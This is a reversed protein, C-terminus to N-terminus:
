RKKKGGGIMYLFRDDSLEEGSKRKSFYLFGDYLLVFKEESVPKLLVEVFAIKKEVGKLKEIKEIENRTAQLINNASNKFLKGSMFNIESDNAKIILSTDLMYPFMGFLRVVQQNLYEKKRFIPTDKVRTFLDETEIIGKISMKELSYIRENIKDVPLIERTFPNRTEGSRLIKKLDIIDYCKGKIKFIRWKPLENLEDGLLNSDECSEIINYMEESIIKCLERKSKKDLSKIGLETGIEILDKLGEKNLKSCIDQWKFEQHKYSEKIQQRMNPIRISKKIHSIIDTYDEEDDEELEYLLNMIDSIDFEGNKLLFDIIKESEKNINYAGYAAEQLAEFNKPDVGNDILLKIVKLGGHTAYLLADEPISMGKKIFMDVTKIDNELAYNFIIEEEEYSLNYYESDMLVKVLESDRNKIAKSMLHVWFTEFSGWLNEMDVESEDYNKLLLLILEIDGTDVAVEIDEDVVRVGEDILIEIIDIYNERESSRIRNNRSLNIIIGDLSQNSFLYNEKKNLIHIVIEKRGNIAALKLLANKQKSSLSKYNSDILRRGLEINNDYITDYIDIVVNLSESSM